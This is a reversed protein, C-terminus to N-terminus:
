PTVVMSKIGMQDLHRVVGMAQSKGPFPGLRVRVRVGEKYRVDESYVPLKELELRHALAGAKRRDGFVGVQVLYRRDAPGSEKRPEPPTPAATVPAEVAPAPMGAKAGSDAVREPAAPTPGAPIAASSATPPTVEPLPPSATSLPADPVAVPAPGQSQASPLKPTKAHDLMMPLFLVVVLMLVFAGIMRRRSQIRLTQEQTTLPRKM